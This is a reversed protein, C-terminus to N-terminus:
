KVQAIYPEIVIYIKMRKRKNKKFNIIIHLKRSYLMIRLIERITSNFANNQTM